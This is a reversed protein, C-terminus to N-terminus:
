FKNQLKMFGCTIEKEIKMLPKIRREFRVKCALCLFFFFFFVLQDKIGKIQM